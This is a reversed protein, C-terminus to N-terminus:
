SKDGTILHASKIAAEIEYAFAALRERHTVTSWVKRYAADIMEHTLSLAPAIVPQPTHTPATLKNGWDLLVQKEVSTWHWCHDPCSPLDEETMPLRPAIVPQARAAPAAALMARYEAVCENPDNANVCSAWATAMAQIMEQTPEIPVLQWGVSAIVPQPMNELAGAATDFELRDAAASTLHSAQRLVWTHLDSPSWQQFPDLAKLQDKTLPNTANKKASKKNSYAKGNPPTM